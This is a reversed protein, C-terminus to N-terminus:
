AACGVQRIACFGTQLASSREESLSNMELQRPNRSHSFHLLAYYLSGRNQSKRFAFIFITVAVVFMIAVGVILGIVESDVTDPCPKEECSRNETALGRKDCNGGYKGPPNDCKRIWIEVGNGCTVSCPFAKTWNSYNGDVPCPKRSCKRIETPNGIGGCGRGHYKPEPNDCTRRWIEVGEGCSASCRISLNWKSYGGNVPCYKTWCPRYEVPEGLHSCNRGGYKPRPNDCNRTWTEFGRGCTANCASKMSWNGYSGAVYNLGLLSNGSNALALSIDHFM